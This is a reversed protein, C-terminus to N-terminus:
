RTACLNQSTRAYQKLEKRCDAKVIEEFGRRAALCDLDFQAEAFTDRVALHYNNMMRNHKEGPLKRITFWKGDNAHNGQHKVQGQHVYFIHQKHKYIRTVIKAEWDCKEPDICLDCGKKAREGPYLNCTECEHTEDCTKPDYTHTM